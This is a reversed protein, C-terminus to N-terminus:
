LASQATWNGALECPREPHFINNNLVKSCVAFLQVGINGRSKPNRLVNYSAMNRLKRRGAIDNAALDRSIGVPLLDLVHTAPQGRIHRRARWASLGAHLPRCIRFLQDPSSNTLSFNTANRLCVVRKRYASVFAGIPTLCRPKKKTQVNKPTV